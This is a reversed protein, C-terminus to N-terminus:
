RMSMCCVADVGRASPAQRPNGQNESCGIDAIEPAQGALETQRVLGEGRRRIGNQRLVLHPMDTIGDSENDGIRDLVCAVRELRDLDSPRRKGRNNADGVGHLIACRLDPGIVGTVNQEVNREAVLLRRIGGEGPRMGHGLNRDDIRADDGVKHLRAGCDAFIVRPTIMQRQRDATLAAM